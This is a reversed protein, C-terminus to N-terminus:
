RPVRTGGPSSSYEISLKGLAAAMLNYLWTSICSVKTLYAEEKDLTMQDPLSPLGPIALSPLLPQYGKALLFLVIGMMQSVIICILLLASALHYMWFCTPEKTQGHWIYDKLMRIIRGVEGNAKRNGITIHYHVIGLGKCLQTFSGAFETGNDTQVYCPKGLRAVLDNYLFKATMRSHLLPMAHTEVWKSFHDMAVLLYHNGDEDWLFPNVAYISWRIFLAGGKDMSHLKEKPLAPPRDQHCVLCNLICDAMYVYM